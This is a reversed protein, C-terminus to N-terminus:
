CFGKLPRANSCGKHMVRIFSHKWGQINQEHLTHISQHSFTLNRPSYIPLPVGEWGEFSQEPIVTGWISCNRGGAEQSRDGWPRKDEVFSHAQRRGIYNDALTPKERTSLSIKSLWVEKREWTEMGPIENCAKWWITHKVQLINVCYRM